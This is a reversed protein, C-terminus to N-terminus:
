GRLLNKLWDLIEVKGKKPTVKHGGKVVIYSNKPHSPAASFAYGEGREYMRDKEGIIWLLPTGEKLNAVNNPMVASGEPDYWSLYISAQIEKETQRGQNQDKFETIEKGKGSDVMKQARQWDNGVKQQFSKKEPVHGPAIALIGALGDRSAGYGLAANAGMSHGGVVIKTAGKSRLENVVDDIEKMSGEYSKDLGRNRSWPMNPSSVLIGNDSLFETLKGIPSNPLSTGWKGHMLIVGIKEGAYLPTVFSFLVLLMSVILSKM